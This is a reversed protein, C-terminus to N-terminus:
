RSSTTADGAIQGSNNIAAAGSVSGGMTGLDTMVGGSYVFAHEVGTSTYSYGVLQGFDNIGLGASINGGLTGLSTMMGNSYLFARNPAGVFTSTGAVEGKQNIASPFSVSGPAVSGLDTVSYMVQGSAILSLCAFVAAPFFWTCTPIRGCYSARVNSFLM